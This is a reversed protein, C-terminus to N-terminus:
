VVSLIGYLVMRWADVECKDLYAFVSSSLGPNPIYILPLPLTYANRGEFIDFSTPFKPLSSALM